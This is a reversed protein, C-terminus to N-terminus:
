PQHPYFNSHRIPRFPQGLNLPSAAGEVQDWPNGIDVTPATINSIVNSRTKRHYGNSDEYGEEAHIIAFILAILSAVAIFFIGILILSLISM